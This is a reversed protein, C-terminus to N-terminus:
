PNDSVRGAPMARPRGGTSTRRRTEPSSGADSGGALEASHTENLESCHPCVALVQGTVMFRARKHKLHLRGCRLFGLLGGCGACRWETQSLNTNM